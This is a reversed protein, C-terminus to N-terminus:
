RVGSHTQVVTELEQQSQPLSQESYFSGIAANLEKSVIGYKQDNNLAPWEDVALESRENQGISDWWYEVTGCLPGDPGEMCPLSVVAEGDGVSYTLFTEVNGSVNERGEISLTKPNVYGAEVAAQSTGGSLRNAVPSVVAGYFLAAGAVVAGLTAATKLVSTGTGSRIGIGKGILSMQIVEIINRSFL